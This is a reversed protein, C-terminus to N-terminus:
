GCPVRSVWQSFVPKLPPINFPTLSFVSCNGLKSSMACGTTSCTRGERCLPVGGDPIPGSSTQLTLHLPGLGRSSRFALFVTRRLRHDAAVGSNPRSLCHNEPSITGYPVNPLTLFCKSNDCKSNNCLPTVSM